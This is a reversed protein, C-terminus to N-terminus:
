VLMELAFSGVGLDHKCSRTVPYGRYSLMTGPVEPLEVVSEIREASCISFGREADAPWGEEAPGSGKM